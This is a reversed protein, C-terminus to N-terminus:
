ITDTFKIYTTFNNGSKLATQTIQYLIFGKVARFLKLINIYHNRMIVIVCFIKFM